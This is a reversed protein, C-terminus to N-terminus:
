ILVKNILYGKQNRGNNSKGAFKRTDDVDFYLKLLDLDPKLKFLRHTKIGNKLIFKYSASTYTQGVNFRSRLYNIFEFNSTQESFLNNNMIDRIAKTNFKLEEAKETGVALLMNIQKPYELKLAELQHNANFPDSLKLLEIKKLIPCIIELTTKIKLSDKKILKIREKDCITYEEKLHTVRFHKSKQYAKILNQPSVYYQKVKEEFCRNDQLFYNITGDETICLNGEIRKILENITNISASTTAGDRYRKLYGHLVLGLQVDAKIDLDSQIVLDPNFNTIHVIEKKPKFNETERFRGVIQVAESMPDITSHGAFHLDTLMIITPDKEHMIDVASFFRSTLFNFKRFSTLDKYVHEFKNSKLKQLSDHSCFINSDDKIRLRNVLHAISDTSNHFIFYNDRPNDEIFKGLTFEINNTEILKLAQSYKFTPEIVIKKFGEQEFRPDTFPLPTASILAKQVYSFFDEMPLLMKERFSADQILRECEDFLLFFDSTLFFNEAEEVAVKIKFYSEPTTIFKKFKVDSNLYEVLSDITVGEYVGKILPKRRRNNYYKCKGKIVPVNPVIIIVNQHNDEDLMLSTARIGTLTKYIITDSPIEPMIDKIFQGRDIHKTLM